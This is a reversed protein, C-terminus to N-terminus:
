QQASPEAPAAHPFTDARLRAFRPDERFYDMSLDMDMSHLWASNETRARDLERFAEERQGLAARLWAMFCADVYEFQRRQELEELIAVAEPLRQQKALCIGEHARLWSLDPSMLSATQYQALAEDLRGSYELAQGYTARGIQLYPHLEVARMGVGVAADFERRWIRILVEMPPVTPLLPDARRGRALMELGEDTRGLSAYLRALRVCISAAGPMERLAELFEAEAESFRREFVHLGHAHNCRLETTDVGLERARGYAALFRPYMEHPPRMGFTALMLYSASLGEFARFDSPCEDAAQRFAEIAKDFGERTRRNWFHWGTRVLGDSKPVELRYGVKPRNVIWGGFEQLCKKVEGVTVDVTHRSVVTGHWAEAIMEEYRVTQGGHLLLVKLAQLAQPRLNVDAGDRLLRTASTDLNFPGFAIESM